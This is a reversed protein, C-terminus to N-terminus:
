GEQLFPPWQDADGQEAPVFGFFDFSRAMHEPLPAHVDLVRRDPKPLRIARAHLHLRSSDANGPLFAAEGGYKGDGLIPTGIHACHVRLQHTRGTLPALAVWSLVRQARQLVRYQTRSPLGGESAVTMIERDGMGSKILPADIEGVLPRPVGVTLAWYLKQVAGRRFLGTLRTAAKANRAIILVGSTDRDLRHVLRPREGEGDALGDLMADLHVHTGTGGQVALGAPKNLVFLESDEYLVLARIKEVDGPRIVRARKSTRDEAAGAQPPVRVTEGGALRENGKARHGDLRVQGTRLWKQIEGYTREPFREALWRDFRRGASDTSVTLSSTGSM